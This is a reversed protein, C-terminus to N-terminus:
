WENRDIGCQGCEPSGLSKRNAPQGCTACPALECPGNDFVPLLKKLLSSLRSWTSLRQNAINKHLSM